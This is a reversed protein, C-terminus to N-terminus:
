IGKRWNFKAPPVSKPVNICDMKLYYSWYAEVNDPSTGGWDPFPNSVTAAIRLYPTMSLGYDNSVVCQYDGTLQENFYEGIFLSGTKADFRAEKERDSLKEGNFRWAYKLIGSGTAVCSFTRNHGNRIYELTKPWNNGQPITIRPPTGRAELCSTTAAGHVLITLFM